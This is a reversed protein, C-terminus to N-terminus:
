VTLFPYSLTQFLMTVAYYEYLSIENSFRLGAICFSPWLFYLNLSVWRLSSTEQSTSPSAETCRRGPAASSTEPTRISVFTRIVIRLWSVRKLSSYPSYFCILLALSYSSKLVPFRSWIRGTKTSNCRQRCIWTPTLSTFFSSTPVGSVTEKSSDALIKNTYVGLPKGTLVTSKCRLHDTWRSCKRSTWLRRFM